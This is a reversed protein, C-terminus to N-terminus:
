RSPSVQLFVMLLPVSIVTTPRTAVAGRRTRSSLPPLTVFKRSADVALRKSWARWSHTSPSVKQDSTSHQSSIPPLTARLRLLPSGTTTTPLRHVRLQSDSFPLPLVECILAEAM